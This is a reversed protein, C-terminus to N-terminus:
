APVHRMLSDLICFSINNVINDMQKDELCRSTVYLINYFQGNCIYYISCDLVLRRKMYVPEISFILLSRIKFFKSTNVTLCNWQLLYLIHVPPDAIECKEIPGGTGEISNGYVVRINAKGTSPKLIPRFVYNCIEYKKKKNRM